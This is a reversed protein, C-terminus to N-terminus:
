NPPFKLFKVRLPAHPRKQGWLMFNRIIVHNRNKANRSSESWKGFIWSAVKPMKLNVTPGTCLYNCDNQRPDNEAFNHNEVFNNACFPGYFKIKVVSQSVFIKPRGIKPSLVKSIEFIFKLFEYSLMSRDLLRNTRLRWMM